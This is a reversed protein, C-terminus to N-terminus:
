GLVVSEVAQALATAGARNRLNMHADIILPVNQDLPDGSTARRPLRRVINHTVGDCLVDTYFTIPSSAFTGAGSQQWWYVSADQSYVAYGPVCTARIVVRVKGTELVTVQGIDIEAVTRASAPLGPILLFAVLMACGLARKM